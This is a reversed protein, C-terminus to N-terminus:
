SSFPKDLRIWVQCPCLDGDYSCEKQFQHLETQKNTRKQGNTQGDMQGCKHKRVRVPFRKTWDFEYKVPVYIVMMALNRDFNTYNWGDMQRDMRRDVNENGPEKIRFPNTWDSKVPVYIVMMALNRESSTYNQKDMNQVNTWGDTAGCKRKQVRVWFRNAWDFEFKVPLYIVM